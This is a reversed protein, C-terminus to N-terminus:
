GVIRHSVIGKRNEGVKRALDFIKTRRGLREKEKEEAKRQKEEEKEEELCLSFLSKGIFSNIDQFPQNSTQAKRKSQFGVSNLSSGERKTQKKHSSPRSKTKEPTTAIPTKEHEKEKKFKMAATNNKGSEHENVYDEDDEDDSELLQHISISSHIENEVQKKSTKSPKATAKKSSNSKKTSKDSQKKEKEEKKEKKKEKEKEKEKEEKEKVEKVEGGVSQNLVQDVNKAVALSPVPLPTLVGDVSSPGSIVQVKSAMEAPLAHELVRENGEHRNSRRPRKVPSTTTTTMTATALESKRTHPRSPQVPVSTPQSIQVTPEVKLPPPTILVLGEANLKELKQEIEKIASHCVRDGEEKMVWPEMM